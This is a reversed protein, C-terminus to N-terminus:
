QKFLTIKLHDIIKGFIRIYDNLNTVAPLQKGDVKVRYTLTPNPSSIAKTAIDKKAIELIKSM